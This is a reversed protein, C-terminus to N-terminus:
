NELDVMELEFSDKRCPEGQLSSKETFFWSLIKEGILTLLSSEASDM